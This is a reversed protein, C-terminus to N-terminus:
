PIELCFGGIDSHKAMTSGLTLAHDACGCSRTHSVKPSVGCMRMGQVHTGVHGKGEHVTCSDGNVSGTQTWVGADARIAYGCTAVVLLGEPGTVARRFSAAHHFYRSGMRVPVRIYPDMSRPDEKGLYHGGAGWIAEETSPLDSRLHTM